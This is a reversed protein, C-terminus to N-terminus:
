KKQIFFQINKFYFFRINQALYFWKEKQNFIFKLIIALLLRQSSVIFVNNTTFTIRFVNILFKTVTAVMVM